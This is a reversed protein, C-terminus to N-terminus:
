IPSFSPTHTHTHTHTHRHRHIHIHIRIHQQTHTHIHVLAHAYAHTYAYTHICTHTHTHMCIHTYISVHISGLDESEKAAWMVLGEALGKLCTASMADGKGGGSTGSAASRKGNWDRGTRGGGAGLVSSKRDRHRDRHRDGERDRDRIHNDHNFALDLMSAGVFLTDHQESAFELQWAACGKPDSPPGCCDYRSERSARVRAAARTQLM